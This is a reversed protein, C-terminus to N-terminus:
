AAPSTWLTPGNPTRMGAIEIFQMALHRRPYLLLPRLQGLRVRRSITVFPFLRAIGLGPFAFFAAFGLCEPPFGRGGSALFANSTTSSAESSDNGALSGGEHIERRSFNVSVGPLDPVSLSILYAAVVLAITIGYNLIMAGIYYGSERFYRLGCVACERRM